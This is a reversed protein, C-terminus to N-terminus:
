VDLIRGKPEPRTARVFQLHPRVAVLEHPQLHLFEAFSSLSDIAATARWEVIYAAREPGIAPITALQTVTATRPDVPERPGEASTATPTDDALVPMSSRPLAASDFYDTADAGLATLTPSSPGSVDLVRAAAPGGVATGLAPASTRVTPRGRGLMREGRERRGWLTTVWSRNALLAHVTAVIFLVTQAIIQWEGAERVTLLLFPSAGILTAVIGYVVASIMWDYRVVLLGILLFSVWAWAGM